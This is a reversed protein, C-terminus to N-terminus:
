EREGKSTRWGDDVPFGYVSCFMLFASLTQTDSSSRRKLSVTHSHSLGGPLAHGRQWGQSAAEECTGKQLVLKFLFILLFDWSLRLGSASLRKSIRRRVAKVAQGSGGSGLLPTAAGWQGAM